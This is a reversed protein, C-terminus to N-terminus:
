KYKRFLDDETIIRFFMGNKSCFEMASKWKSANVVLRFKDRQTKAEKVSAEKKPKIEILEVHKKGSKDVYM